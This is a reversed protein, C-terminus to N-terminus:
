DFNLYRLKIIIERFFIKIWNSYNILKKFNFNFKNFPYNQNIFNFSIENAKLTLLKDNLKPNKRNKWDTILARLM